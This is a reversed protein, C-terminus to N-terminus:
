GSIALASGTRNLQTITQDDLDVVLAPLDSGGDAATSRSVVVTTGSLEIRTPHWGGEPRQLDVSALQAFDAANNVVLEWQEPNEGAAVRYVTTGDDSITVAQTCGGSQTTCSGLSAGTTGFLKQGTSLSLTVWGAGAGELYVGSVYAGKISMRQPAVGDRQVDAIVTSSMSDLEARELTVSSDGHRLYVVVRDAGIRAVGILRLREGAGPTVVDSEDAELTRRVIPGEESRQFVLGGNGDYDAAVAPEVVLHAEGNADFWWVGESGSVTLTLDSTSVNFEPGIKEVVTEPTTSPSTSETIPQERPEERAFPLADPSSNELQNGATTCGAVIVAFVAGVQLTRSLPLM